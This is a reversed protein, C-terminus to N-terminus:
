LMEQDAFSFYTKETIILHDLLKIDLTVGAQKIKATLQIDSNSPKLKGSPHNHAVIIGVASVKLAKQYLLRVDVLTATFGGKSLQHKAVVKNSNNLYLVWFEEHGLDGILPQLITAADLSSTIKSIRNSEIFQRRKGIELATIISIAKAEGIGKFSMLEELSLKALANLDNNVSAVIKQSLGVASQERNGSGIIIAILEASSLAAKGKLMLKERPRDDLAWLKISKKKM